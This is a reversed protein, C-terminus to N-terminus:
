RLKRMIQEALERYRRMERRIDEPGMGLEKFGYEQVPRRFVRIWYFAAVFYGMDPLYQTFLTFRTGFFSRSLVYAVVALSALGCGTVVADERSGMPEQVFWMLGMSLLAVGAIGWRFTFEAGLILSVLRNSQVPPAHFTKWASYIVVAVILAAVSWRLLSEFGKFIRLLSERVAGVLLAIRPGEMWWYVTTYLKRNFVWLALGVATSLFEWGIYVVFWPLQKRVDRKVLAKLLLGDLVLNIAFVTYLIVWPLWRSAAMALLIM